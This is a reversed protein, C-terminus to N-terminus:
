NEIRNNTSKVAADTSLWEMEEQENYLVDGSAELGKACDHCYSGYFVANVFGDPGCETAKTALMVYEDNFIEHGCSAYHTM